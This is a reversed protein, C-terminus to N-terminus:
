PIIKRQLQENLFPALNSIKTRSDAVLENTQEIEDITSNTIVENMEQDKFNV